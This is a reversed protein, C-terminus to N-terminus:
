SFTRHSLLPAYGKIEGVAIRMQNAAGRGRSQIYNKFKEEGGLYTLYKQDLVLPDKTRICVANQNLLFGVADSKISISRGAASNVLTQHSGVTAIVLDDEQLAHRSYKALSTEPLFSLNSKDVSRGRINSVKLVPIGTLVYESENWAGGNIFTCMDGLTQMTGIM